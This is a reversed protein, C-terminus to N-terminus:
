IHSSNLRTSKRDGDDEVPNYVFPWGPEPLPAEVGRACTVHSRFVSYILLSPTWRDPIWSGHTKTIM